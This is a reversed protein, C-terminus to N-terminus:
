AVTRLAEAPRLRAARIAPLITIILVAAYVLAIATWLTEPDPAFGSVHGEVLTATGILYAAALGVVVGATTTILTELVIGSLVQDPRFGIARLVGIARRREVVARLAITGLSFVGVLLGVRMLTLLLQIFGQGNAHSDDLIQRTTTADAGQALTERQVQDALARPAVGPAASLLMLVGPTSGPLKDLIKSSGILGDIIEPRSLNGELAIVTLHVTGASTALDVQTGSLYNGVVLSPDNELAAWVDAENHYKPEWSALPMVGSALQRDSLGFLTLAQQSWTGNPGLGTSTWKVPGLFTRSPLAEQRKVSSQADLPLTLQGSGVESVAVDWGGSDRAYNLQNAALSASLSTLIAVIVGFSAIVLGSRLPRRTTYALAPRLTARLSSAIRGRASVLTELLRLQSAVLVSGGVVAVILGMMAGPLGDNTGWTAVKLSVYGIAWVSIAAGIATYRIRDAIRGRLLGGACAIVTAGGVARLSPAAALALGAGALAGGGLVM